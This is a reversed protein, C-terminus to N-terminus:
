FVLTTVAALEVWAGISLLNWARELIIHGGYPFALRKSLM